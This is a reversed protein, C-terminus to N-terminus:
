DKTLWPLIKWVFFLGADAADNAEIIYFYDWSGWPSEQRSFGYPIPEFGDKTERKELIGSMTSLYEQITQSPSGLSLNATNVEEISTIRPDGGRSKRYYLKYIM